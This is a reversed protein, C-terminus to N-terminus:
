QLIGPAGKIGVMPDQERSPSCAGTKTRYFDSSGGFSGGCHLKWSWAGRGDGMTARLWGKETKPSFNQADSKCRSFLQQIFSLLFIARFTEEFAEDPLLGDFQM